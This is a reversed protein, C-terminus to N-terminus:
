IRDVPGTLQAHAASRGLATLLIAVSPGSLEPQGPTGGSWDLDDARFSFREDIGPVRFRSATKSFAFDMLPEVVDPDVRHELGLPLFMDQGHIVADMLPAEPGAGPPTFRHTANDRLDAVIAATPRAGLQRGFELNARNFNGRAKVMGMAFKPLGVNWGATLHGAVERVTWGDCLSAAAWQDDTLAELDDAIQRRRAAILDFLEM